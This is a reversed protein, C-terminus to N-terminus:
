DQPEAAPPPAGDTRDSYSYLGIRIRRDQARGSRRDEEILAEIQPVLAESLHRWQDSIAARLRDLSEASLEDAFVAQEFHSPAGGLVNATAASFHDGVNQGLFALLRELDGHPVFTQRVLAVRDTQPDLAALGLRVLEDLLSRPHVDRTVSQALSEFSPPPGQRPLDRPLDAADRYDPHSMWRAFLEAAVPRRRVAPPEDQSLRTVERRNMGTATAIRSVARHAPLQPHAERAAQVFARKVLTDVEAYPLGKAVALRALPRVVDALAAALAQAEPSIGAAPSGAPAPRDDDAM